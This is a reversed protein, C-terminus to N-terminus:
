ISFKSVNQALIGFNQCKKVQFGLIQVKYNSIKVRSVFNECM